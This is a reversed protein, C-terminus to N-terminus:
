ENETEDDWTPPKKKMFWSKPWGFNVNFSGWWNLDLKDRYRPDRKTLLTTAAQVNWKQAAKILTIRAWATTQLKAYDILDAFWIDEYVSTTAGNADTRAFQYSVIYNKKKWGMYTTRPIVAYKCADRETWDYMIFSILKQVTSDDMKSPRWNNKKEWEKPLVTPKNNKKWKIIPKRPWTKRAKKKSKVKSTKIPM